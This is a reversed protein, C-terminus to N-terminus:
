FDNKERLTASGVDERRRAMDEDVPVVLFHQEEGFRGRHLRAYVRLLGRHLKGLEDTTCCVKQCEMFLRRNRDNANNLDFKGLQCGKFTCTMNHAQLVAQSHSAAQTVVLM